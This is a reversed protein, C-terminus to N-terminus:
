LTKLWVSNLLKFEVMWNLGVEPTTVLGAATPVGVPVSGFRIRANVSRNSYQRRTAPLNFWRAASPLHEEAAKEKPGGPLRGLSKPCNLLTHLAARACRKLCCDAIM